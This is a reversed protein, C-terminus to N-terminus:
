QQFERAIAVLPFKRHITLGTSETMDLSEPNTEGPLTWDFMCLLNALVIENTAMAFYIGPCGRRGSGFPILEFDHGKLDIPNEYMFREPLFEEPQDWSLSDRGVAFANVFVQTKAPIHYGNITVDQTSERPVLLPIPPHLRFTEKIVAKLYPLKGLDEETIYSSKNRATTRVEDQVKKMVRPNRLLESMIWEAVTYTTDTGAAFVDLIIAKISVRDIPFGINNEKQIWLLIDVFDLQEDDRPSKDNLKQIHEEVVSDIFEDLEKAVREMKADFGNLRSLWSLWPIFNGINVAGLLEVFEELLKKFKKGQSSYKKGLAVRCVVDNTYTALTESLSVLNSSSTKIKEIMIKTEEERVQRFGQVRKNSLLHLVCVSKMERWYEGYPASAVDKYNYLLKELIVSKPRNAFIIDHTKLIERAVNTSSVVIIPVSGFHLLMLSGYKQALSYISHHPYLGIQHLNGIIPLKPPSPPLNVSTKSSSYKLYLISIFIILLSTIFLLPSQLFFELSLNQGM